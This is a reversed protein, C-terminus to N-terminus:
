ATDLKTGSLLPLLSLGDLKVNASPQVGAIDLLTPLVDIHAAIRDIQRGGRLSAPWQMFCPVRIGGEYVWSKRGRLGANFREQQARVASRLGDRVMTRAYVAM